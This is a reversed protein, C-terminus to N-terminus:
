ISIGLQKFAGQRIQCSDCSGCEKGNIPDYCSLTKSYDVGLEIGLKIIEIKSLNILPALIKIKKGEVGTKTALNAMKEFSKVYELRCDPYGSYDVANVGIYISHINNVEAFALAYSLFITNRAPVYTIPIGSASTDRNKPVLIESTLASGKISSFDLTIIKHNKINYYLAINVAREVELKHKQGYDFTLLFVEYNENLCHALLTTSDLGGSFLILVREKQKPPKKTPTKNM